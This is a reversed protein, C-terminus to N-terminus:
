LRIVYDKVTTEVVEWTGTFGPRLIMSDGARLTSPEGGEPTVVSVGSLIHFYEWEEYVVRWKGPTAQWVGCYLGDREEVNWTTFAPDGAILRDPAPRDTEAAGDRNVRIMQTPSTM